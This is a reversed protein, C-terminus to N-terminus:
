RKGKKRLCFKEVAAVAAHYEAQNTPIRGVIRRYYPASQETRSRGISEQHAQLLGHQFTARNLNSLASVCHGQEADRTALFSNGSASRILGRLRKAHTLPALGLAM